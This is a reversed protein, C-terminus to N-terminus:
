DAPEDFNPAELLSRFFLNVALLTEGIADAV